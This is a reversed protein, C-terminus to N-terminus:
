SIGPVLPLTPLSPANLTSVIFCVHDSSCRADNKVDTNDVAPPSAKAPSRAKQCQDIWNVDTAFEVSSALRAEIQAVGPAQLGFERRATGQPMIAASLLSTQRQVRDLIGIVTYVRDGIFVAPQDDLRDIKLERAANRGLVLVRDGRQSHGADFFRGQGLTGRVARFAGASAAKMPLQVQPARFQRRVSGLRLAGRGVAGVHNGLQSRQQRFNIARIFDKLRIESLCGVVRALRQDFGEDSLTQGQGQFLM